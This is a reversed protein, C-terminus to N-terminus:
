RLKTGSFREGYQAGARRALGRYIAGCLQFCSQLRRSSQLITLLASLAKDDQPASEAGFSRHMNAATACAFTCIEKAGSLIVFREPTHHVPSSCETM